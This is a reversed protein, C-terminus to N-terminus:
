GPCRGREPTSHCYCCIPVLRILAHTLTWVHASGSSGAQCLLSRMNCGLRIRPLMRRRVHVTAPASPSPAARSVPTAVGADAMGIGGDVDLQVYLPLGTAKAALPVVPVGTVTLQVPSGGLVWSITAWALGNAPTILGDVEAVASASRLVPISTVVRGVPVRVAVIVTVAVPPVGRKEAVSGWATQGGVWAWTFAPRVLQTTVTALRAVVTPSFKPLMM